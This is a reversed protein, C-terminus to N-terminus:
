PIVRLESGEVGVAALLATAKSAAKSTPMALAQKLTDLYNQRALLMAIVAETQSATLKLSLVKQMLDNM